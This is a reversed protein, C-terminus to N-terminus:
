WRSSTGTDRWPSESESFSWFRESSRAPQCSTDLFTNSSPCVSCLIYRLGAYNSTRTVNTKTSPSGPFWLASGASVPFMLTTRAEPAHARPAGAHQGTAGDQSLSRPGDACDPTLSSSSKVSAWPPRSHIALLSLRPTRCRSTDRMGRDILNRFFGTWYVAATGRETPPATCRCPKQVGEM